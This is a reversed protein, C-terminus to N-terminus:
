DPESSPAAALLVAIGDLIRDLGFTFEVDPDDYKDFVGSAIFTNIAPFRQPDALKALLRGYSSMWEDPAAGSSRIAAEIDASTTAENRVYGSVLLIVSAKREEALGTGRLAHLAQEFWAVENPRVPLGSIPARLVWPHQYLVARMARALRSLGERWGEDPVEAVLAHAYVSDVMLAVLEDKASVYRYLSMPASGLEAAVRSMSVAALGDSEAVKVGAEVIRGLSLGPKPGKHPRERLGWAAEISAPLEWAGPGPQRGDDDMAEVEARNVDM